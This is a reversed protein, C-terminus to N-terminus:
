SGSRGIKWAGKNESMSCAYAYYSIPSVHKYLFFFFCCHSLDCLCSPM